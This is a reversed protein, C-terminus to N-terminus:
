GGLMAGPHNRWSLPSTYKCCCHCHVSLLCGVNHSRKAHYSELGIREKQIQSHMQCFMLLRLYKYFEFFEASGVVLIKKVSLCLDYAFIHRTDCCDFFHLKFGCQLIMKSWNSHCNDFLYFFVFAWSLRSYISSKYVTIPIWFLVAITSFLTIWKDWKQFCVNYKWFLKLMYFICGCLPLM